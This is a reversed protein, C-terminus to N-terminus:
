FGESGKGQWLCRNLGVSLLWPPKCVMRQFLILFPWVVVPERSHAHGGIRFGPSPLCGFLEWGM